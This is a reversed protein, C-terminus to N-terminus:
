PTFPPPGNLLARVEADTLRFILISFGVEDDPPRARM